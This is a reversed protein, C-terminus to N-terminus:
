KTSNKGAAMLAEYARDRDVNLMKTLIRAAASKPMEKGLAEAWACLTEDDATSEPKDGLDFVWVMEGKVSSPDAQAKQSIMEQVQSITGRHITEFQKTLERAAAMPTKSGFIEACDNLSEIARHPAEFIVALGRLALINKLWECRASKKAPAFGHFSIPWRAFGCISLIATLASAGPLPSILVGAKWAADVVVAGPDSIGPTGADSILLVSMGNQINRVVEQAVEAENHDHLAHINKQPRNIHLGNMLALARRTDESYILDCVALASRVRDTIDSLHGIPTAAVYLGPPFKPLAM